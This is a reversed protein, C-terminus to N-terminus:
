LSSTIKIGLIRQYYKILNSGFVDLSFQKKTLKRANNGLHERIKRNELERLAIMLSEVSEASIIRGANMELVENSLAVCDSIIVPLGKAMAEVVAVGFSEQFSPLIFIDAQNMLEWKRKGKVFGVFEVKDDLDLQDVMKVLERVYKKEGNGAVTLQFNKGDSALKSLAKFLLPLNKVPHIRSLFLLNITNQHIKNSRINPLTIGLPLIQINQCNSLQKLSEYEAKSTVHLSAAGRLCQAIILKYYVKKKLAKQQMSWVDLTGAPRIIYPIQNRGSMFCAILPPFTFIGHIHVLDYKSVNRRLWDVLEKSFGWGLQKVPFYFYRGSNKLIPTGVKWENDWELITRTAIVDVQIHQLVLVHVFQKLAESPGGLSPSDSRIVHLVKLKKTTNTIDSLNEHQQM